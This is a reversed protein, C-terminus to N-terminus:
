NLRVNKVTVNNKSVIDVKSISIYKMRFFYHQELNKIKHTIENKLIVIKPEKVRKISLSGRM